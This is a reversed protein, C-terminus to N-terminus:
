LVSPSSSFLVCSVISVRICYPVLGQPLLGIRFPLTMSIYTMSKQSEGTLLIISITVWKLNTHQIRRAKLRRSQCVRVLVCGKKSPNNISMGQELM